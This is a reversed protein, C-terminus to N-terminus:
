SAGRRTKTLGTIQPPTPLPPAGEGPTPLEAGEVPIGLDTLRARIAAQRELLYGRDAMCADYAPQENPLVFTRGCRANYRAIDANVAEWAARAQAETMEKPDDPRPLRPEQKWRSNVAQIAGRRSDTTTHAPATADTTAPVPRAFETVPQRWHAPAMGAMQAAGAHLTTAITENAGQLRVMRHAIFSRHAQATQQRAVREAPSNHSRNDTVSLDAGVGFGDIEAEAIAELVQERAGRLAEGGREAVDAMQQAHGVAGIVATKDAYAMQVASGAAQGQWETGSPSSMQDVYANAARELLAARVRWHAAAATLMDVTQDFAEIRSRTLPGEVAGM